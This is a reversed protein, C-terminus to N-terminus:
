LQGDDGSREVRRLLSADPINAVENRALIVLADAHDEDALVCAVVDSLGPRMFIAAQALRDGM